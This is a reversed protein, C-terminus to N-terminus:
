VELWALFASVGWLISISTALLPLVMLVADGSRKGSPLALLM